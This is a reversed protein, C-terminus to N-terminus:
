APSHENQSGITIARASRVQELQAIRETILRAATKTATHDGRRSQEAAIMKVVYPDTIRVATTMRGENM